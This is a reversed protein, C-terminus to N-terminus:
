LLYENKMDKSYIDLEERVILPGGGYIKHLQTWVEMNVGRYDKNLELNKRIKFETMERKNMEIQNNDQM